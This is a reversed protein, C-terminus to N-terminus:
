YYRASAPFQNIDIKSKALYPALDIWAGSACYDGVNSSTFSSVVDPANGGRIAAIIKDDNISGVLKVDVDAHAKDYDEVVSRFVSLERASWGVWITLKTTGQAHSPGALAATSGSVALAAAALLALLVAPRAKGRM